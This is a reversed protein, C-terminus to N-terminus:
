ENKFDKYEIMHVGNKIMHFCVKGSGQLIPVGDEINIVEGNESEAWVAVDDKVTIKLLTDAPVDIPYTEGNLILNAQRLISDDNYWDTALVYFDRMGNPSDYVTFQVTEPCSIYSKEQALIDSTIDAIAKEYVPAIADDGPYLTSNVFYLMGKGVPIQNFVSDDVSDRIIRTLSHDILQQKGEEVTRRDTTMSFHPIGALLIGGNMLFDYLKDMDEETACNYGAFFMAKYTFKDSDCEIPLVDVNGNPTGSYMGLPEKPAFHCYITQAPDNLPYFHKLLRWSDEPTGLAMNTGLIGGKGFSFSCFGDYRGSLFAFPTYYKGRRTHTTIYRLIDQQHKLHNRCCDSQRSYSNYYEEIHWLGEETNIEKIGQIYPVYLALRFRKDHEPVDYPSTSWQLALHVSDTKLDYGRSVGRLFALLVETPGYMTEAGVMEYGAQIFYKFYTSPGTHRTSELRIYEMEKIFNEAALRMDQIDNKKPSIFCHFGQEEAVVEKPLLPNITDPYQKTLHMMWAYMQLDSPKDIYNNFGWYSYAGDREHLQRGLFGEGDIMEVTPNANLGPLERGDLMHSYKIGLDNLLSIFWKWNEEHVGRNGCWRYCPRLTMLNGMNQSIYWSLYTELEERNEANVYVMDGSGVIVEDRQKVAIQRVTFRCDYDESFLVCEIDNAQKVAMAQFVHLGPEAFHQTEGLVSGDACSFQITCNEQKTRLLVHIPQGVVADPNVGVIVFSEDEYSFLGVESVVFPLPERGDTILCLQITNKGPKLLNEPINKEMESYRQCREFFSGKYFVSGNASLEFKPWEKKSLNLGVWSIENYGAVTPAFDPLLNYGNESLLYPSEFYLKGSYDNAEIYVEVSAIQEPPLQIKTEMTTWDYTGSNIRITKAYDPDCSFDHSARVSEKLRVRFSMQISGDIQLNETKVRIGATWDPTYQTLDLYGLVPEFLVHNRVGKTYAVPEDCSFDLCYASQQAVEINLADEISLYNYICKPESKLYYFQKTEGKFFLRFRREQVDEEQLDFTFEVSQQPRICTEGQFISQYREYM